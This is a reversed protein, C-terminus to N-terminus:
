FLYNVAFKTGDLLFECFARRKSERWDLRHILPDAAIILSSIALFIRAKGKHGAIAALKM